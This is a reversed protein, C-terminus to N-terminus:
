TAKEGTVPDLGHKTRLYTVGETTLGQRWAVATPDLGVSALVRKTQLKRAASTRDGAPLKHPDAGQIERAWVETLRALSHLMQVHVPADPDIPHLHSGAPDADSPRRDIYRAAQYLKVTTRILQPMEQRPTPM